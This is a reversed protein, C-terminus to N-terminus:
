SQPLEEGRDVAALKDAVAAVDAPLVTFRPPEGDLSVLLRRENYPYIKMVRQGGDARYLTFVHSPQGVAPAEDLVESLTIALLSIYLRRANTESVPVGDLLPAMAAPEGAGTHGFDLRREGAPLGFTVGTLTNIDELWLTHVMLTVYDARLFTYDGVPDLLVSDVGEYMLYRAGDKDQGGILLTLPAGDALTLTLRAPDELGYPALDAPHDAMVVSPAIAAIPAIVQEEIYFDNGQAAVPETLAYPGITFGELDSVREDDPLVRLTYATDPGSVQLGRLTAYPDETDIAPLNNLTRLESEPKLLATGPSLPLIFVNGGDLRAYYGDGLGTLAGVELTVASETGTVTWVVAPPALGFEALQADTPSDALPTGSLRVFVAAVANLGYHGYTFGTFGPTLEYVFSDATLGPASRIDYGTGDARVCSLTKQQARPMELLVQAPAATVPPPADSPAPTEPPILTLAALGGGLVLLIALAALLPRWTKGPTRM